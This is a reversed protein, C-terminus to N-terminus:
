TFWTFTRKRESEDASIRVLQSKPWQKARSHSFLANGKGARYDVLYGGLLRMWAMGDLGLRSISSLTIWSYQLTCNRKCRRILCFKELLWSGAGGGHFMKGSTVIFAMVLPLRQLRRCLFGKRHVHFRSSHEAKEFRDLCGLFVAHSVGIALELWSVCFTCIQTLRRRQRSKAKCQSGDMELRSLGTVSLFAVVLLLQRSQISTHSQDCPPIYLGM